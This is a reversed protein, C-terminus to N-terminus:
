RKVFIRVAIHILIFFLIILALGMGM